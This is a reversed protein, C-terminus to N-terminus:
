ATSSIFTTQRFYKLFPVYKDRPPLTDKVLPLDILVTLWSFVLPTKEYDILKIGLVEEQAEYNGLMCCIVIDLLGLNQNVDVIKNCDPFLNKLGEELINLKEDVEKIAKKQAEGDTRLALIIADFLKELFSAWFRVQARRYPHQPLLKPGHKWTEDIYELIVLSDTIPKGNHVLVPVQKYVPNLKLLTPSKNLLDEEVYEFDIGKVKLALKVRHYYPSAWAGHLRLRDEEAM